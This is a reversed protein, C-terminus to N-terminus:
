RVGGDLYVCYRMESKKHSKELFEAFMFAEHWEPFFGVRSEVTNFPSVWIVCAYHMVKHMAATEGYECLLEDVKNRREELTM